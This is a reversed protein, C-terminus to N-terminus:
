NMACGCGCNWPNAVGAASARGPRRAQNIQNGAPDHDQCEPGGNHYAPYADPQDSRDDVMAPDNSSHVAPLDRRCDAAFNDHKTSVNPLFAAVGQQQAAPRAAMGDASLLRQRQLTQQEFM